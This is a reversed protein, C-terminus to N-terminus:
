FTFRAVLQLTRSNSDFVQSPDNFIPNGPILHNRTATSDRFLVKNPYGPTYQAHNFVNFFFGKLEIAKTETINFRKAINLDWNNIVGMPITNRGANPFVGPGAVIYRATPDDALYGVVREPTDDVSCAGAGRCLPTVGSGTGARGATNVVARDGATDFNLNSDENSQVTAYQPSEYTYVGGIIWNGALNRLFWNSDGSKFFPMDWVWSGTFRHTRDLFSRAWENRLNYVDQPRRPSLSTSFLDATSDDMNKSWTYAVKFTLGRSFRRSLETQLGHYVSNGRNDFVTINTQNFGAAAFAPVFPDIALLDGLTLNLNDVEAQSPQQLFTPLSRGPQVPAFVNLWHQTFLNVGRTGVYRVEASYDQAFSRQVGFNWTMSYPLNQDPIYTSTLAIADEPSLQDPRRSPSIGGHALYNPVTQRVDDRVTTELQPPKQLTGLNDFYNDYSMGFGARISTLGSSGPSWAIGVRPAFNWKEAKPARFEILGPVSSAANLEQLEDDRPIGKYEYRVGLNLTFNPRIRWSDQAFWYLNESNGSYPVGGLNREALSDPSLDLLYRELTSYNYEGRMRQIFNTPAIYKRADIGFKLAHQGASWNLNNAIQYTNITGSQPSETFPGLNLNLDEQIGINPFVDLGPFSYDGSPIIDNYRNYGLRLENTLTPSFTHVHTLMAMYSRTQRQQLFAPLDPVIGPDIGDLRNAIFRGRLNDRDSINYDASAIWNYVNQFSPFAIPVEGIPVEQGSVMTTRTATPAPSLYQQLVDLNTNSVGPLGALQQYGAQTPAFIAASPSTAYGSPKYEFLGYYFLKNKVIPGGINIGMRNSDYRPNEFIGQRKYSQDVANYNRNEHYLYAAGHIENSGSRIITNFIGGGSHGFEASFQNQLLTFEAVAENPVEVNSGTVDKRNNDVGEINFSNNRPRQGGVSPGEGTGYGGSSAVGASLLSLNHAGLQLGAMPLEITQKSTYTSQVQATTTDILAAAETVTISEAVGGVQLNFNATATRNLEVNVQELRSRNFGGASATMSYVGVPVNNFRYLGNVDTNTTYKVGTATNELEIAANPIAAGSADLVTGVINGDAAQGFAESPIVLLATFFVAMAAMIKRM